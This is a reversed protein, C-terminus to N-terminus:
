GDGLRVHMVSIADGNDLQLLNTNGRLNSPVPVENPADVVEDTKIDVIRTIKDQVSHVMKNKQVCPMWNKERSGCSYGHRSSYGYRSDYTLDITIKWDEDKLCGVVFTNDFVSHDPTKTMSICIEDDWRTLKPDELKFGCTDQFGMYNVRLGNINARFPAFDNDLIGVWMGYTTYEDHEHVYSVNNYFCYNFERFACLYKTEDGHPLVAANGCPCNSLPLMAKLKLPRKSECIERLITTM